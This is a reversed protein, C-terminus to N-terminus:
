FQECIYEVTEQLNKHVAVVKGDITIEKGKESILFNTCGANLGAQIDTLRDGIMFSNELSIQHKKAAEMLMGPQPKRCNCMQLSDHMCTFLDDLNLEHLIFDNIEKLTAETMLGRAVDPQNTVV